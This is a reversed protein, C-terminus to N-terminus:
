SPISKVDSSLRKKGYKFNVLNVNIFFDYVELDDEKELDDLSLNSIQATNIAEQNLQKLQKTGYIDEFM